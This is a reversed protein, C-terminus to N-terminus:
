YIEKRGIGRLTQNIILKTKPKKIYPAILNIFKVMQEENMSVITTQRKRLKRPDPELQDFRCPYLALYDLLWIEGTEIIQWRNEGVDRREQEWDKYLKLHCRGDFLGATYHHDILGNHKSPRPM